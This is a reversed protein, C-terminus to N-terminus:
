YDDFKSKLFVDICRLKFELDSCVKFLKDINESRLDANSMALKTLEKSNELFESLENKSQKVIVQTLLSELAEVKERLELVEINDSM